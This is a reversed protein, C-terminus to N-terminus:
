ARFVYVKYKQGYTMIDVHVWTPADTPSELRIKCPLLNANKKILDHIQQVTYTKCSFDIAKGLNHGSLYMKGAKTKDAVLQCINCRFGRQKWTGNNITIPCKLIKNRIVDLVEILIPDVFRLANDGYKEYMHPCVIEKVSINDCVKNM